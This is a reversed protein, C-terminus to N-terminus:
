KIQYSILVITTSDQPNQTLTITATGGPKEYPQIVVSATELYGNEKRQWGNAPMQEQYFNLVDKLPMRTFYSVFGPAALYNGLEGPVIPIDAPPPTDQSFQTAAAQATEILGPGQETALAQATKVLGLDAAETLVAQATEALAKPNVETVVAKATGLLELGENAQTAAAEVTSRTDTIQEGLGSILNCGFTIALVFVGLGTLQYKKM